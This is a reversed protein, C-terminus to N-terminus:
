DGSWQYEYGPPPNYFAAALRARNTVSTDIWFMKIYSVHGDVFSVMNMSDKCQYNEPSLPRKPQHWSFPDFASLEAVLVTRVPNRISSVTRGAIGLQSVDIGFRNYKTNLNGGNFGYSSYDVFPQNHLPEARLILKNNAVNYHFTDAPCAFLKAKPSSSANLGVYTQLLKKFGTLSLTKNTSTGEPHPAKDSSDDSYLRVGLNIQRLNSICGTRGASAKARSLAPLLLAALIGIIGIVVLLEVLTFGGARLQASVSKGNHGADSM